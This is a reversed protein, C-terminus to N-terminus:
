SSRDRERVVRERSRRGVDGSNNTKADGVSCEGRAVRELAEEIEDPTMGVKSELHRRKDEAPIDRIDDNLLFAEDKTVNEEDPPSPSSAPAASSSEQPWRDKRRVLRWLAVPRQKPTAAAGTTTDMEM